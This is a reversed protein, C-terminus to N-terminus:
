SLIVLIINNLLLIHISIEIIIITDSTVSPVQYYCAIGRVAVVAVVIVAKNIYIIEQGTYLLFVYWCARVRVGTAYSFYNVISSSTATRIIRAAKRCSTTTTLM